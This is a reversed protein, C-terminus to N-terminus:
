VDAVKYVLKSASVSGAKMKEFGAPIGELGGDMDTIPNVKLGFREFLVPLDQNLKVFFARDLPKAPITL